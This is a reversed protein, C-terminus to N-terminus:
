DLLRLFRVITLQDAFQTFPMLAEATSLMTVSTNTQYTYLLNYLRIYDSELGNAVEENDNYQDGFRLFLLFQFVYINM